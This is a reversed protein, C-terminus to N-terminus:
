DKTIEGLAWTMLNKEREDPAAAIAAELRQRAGIAPPGMRGLIVAARERLTKNKGALHPAITAVSADPAANLIKYGWEPVNGATGALLRPALKLACPKIREGLEAVVSAYALDGLEGIRDITGDEWPLTDPANMAWNAAYILIYNPIPVVKIHRAPESAIPGLLALYEVMNYADVETANGIERAIYEAAPLAEKGGIQAMDRVAALRVTAQDSQLMKVMDAPVPQARPGMRGLADAADIMLDADKLLPVIADRASAAVPGLTGIAQLAEFRVADDKDSLLAALAPVLPSGAKGTLGCAQVADRRTDADKAALGTALAKVAGDHGRTIRLMAAAASFRARTSDDALFKELAGVAAVTKVAGIVDAMQRVDDAAAARTPADASQLQKMLAPLDDEDVPGLGIKYDPNNSV